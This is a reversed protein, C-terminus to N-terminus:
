NINAFTSSLRDGKLTTEKDTERVLDSTHCAKSDLSLTM